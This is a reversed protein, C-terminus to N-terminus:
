QQKVAVKIYLTYVLYPLSDSSHILEISFHFERKVFASLVDELRRQAVM